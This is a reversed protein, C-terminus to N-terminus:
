RMLYRLEYRYYIRTHGYIFSVCQDSPENHKKEYLNYLM